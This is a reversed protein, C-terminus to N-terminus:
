RGTFRAPRKEVFAAVGEAHDASRGAVAQLQAEYELQEELGSELSRQLARKALALAIPAQQALRTALGHAESM